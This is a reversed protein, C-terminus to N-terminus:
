SVNKNPNFNKIYGMRVLNAEEDDITYLQGFCKPQKPDKNYLM